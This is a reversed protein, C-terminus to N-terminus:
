ESTATRSGQPLTKMLLEEELYQAGQVIKGTRLSGIPATVVLWVIMPVALGNDPFVPARRVMFGLRDVVEVKRPAAPGVAVSESSKTAAFELPRPSDIAPIKAPVNPPMRPTTM